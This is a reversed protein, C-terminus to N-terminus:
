GGSRKGIVTAMVTIQDGKGADLHASSLIPEFNFSQGGAAATAARKKATVRVLELQTNRGEYREHRGAACGERLQVGGCGMLGEVLLISTETGANHEGVGVADRVGNRCRTSVTM